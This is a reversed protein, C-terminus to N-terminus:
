VTVRPKRVWSLLGKKNAARRLAALWNDLTPRRAADGHLGARLVEILARPCGRRDTPMVLEGARARQALVLVAASASANPPPDGFPLEDFLCAWTSCALAFVDGAESRKGDAVEPAIYGITGSIRFVTEPAGALGLDSLKATGRRILINAPKIDAHVLGADHLARLGAGAELIREVIAQWPKGVRWRELDCDCLEMVAFMREDHEGVDHVRVLNPHDVRTM